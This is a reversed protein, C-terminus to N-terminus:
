FSFAHFTLFKILGSDFVNGIFEPNLPAAGYSRRLFVPKAGLLSQAAFTRRFLSWHVIRGTQSLRASTMEMRWVSYRFESIRLAFPLASRRFDRYIPPAIRAQKRTELTRGVQHVAPCSSVTSHSAVQERTRSANAACIQLTDEGKGSGADGNEFEIWGDNFGDLMRIRPTPNKMGQSRFLQEWTERPVADM